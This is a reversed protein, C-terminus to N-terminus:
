WLECGILMVGLVGYIVLISVFGRLKIVMLTDELGGIDSLGYFKVTEIM